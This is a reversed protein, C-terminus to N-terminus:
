GKGLLQGYLDYQKNIMKELTFKERVSTQGARAMAATRDWDGLLRLIATAIASSDEPPVLTGTQGDVIVEKAGGVNTSIIPTGISMAEVLVQCFAESLSPHVIIDCAKMCAPVDNRFGSFAVRHKLCLREIQQNVDVKGGGDGVFFLRTSPFQAVIRKTADLLFRHGKTVFFNGFTGIVIDSDTFGFENRIRNREAATATFRAFDFGQHVVTIKEAPVNEKEILHQKVAEGLTVIHDATRAEWKDVFIPLPRGVLFAQDLHHRTLIKVPIRALRAAVLGVLSAEYLHTQILDIKRRKLERWLRVTAFPFDSRKKAGLCIYDVGNPVSKIWEPTEKGVEFLTIWVMEVGREHLGLGLNRM